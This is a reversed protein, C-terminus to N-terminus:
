RAQWPRIAWASIPLRVPLQCHASLGDMALVAYDVGGVVATAASEIGVPVTSLVGVGPAAIEVDANKQSFSAVVMNSDIAAVSVVTAFGAPYSVGTTGDNGAAAIM